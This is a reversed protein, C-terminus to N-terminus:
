LRLGRGPVPKRRGFSGDQCFSFSQAEAGNQSEEPRGKAKSRSSTMSTAEM